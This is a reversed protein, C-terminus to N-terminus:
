IKKMGAYHHRSSSFHDVNEHIVVIITAAEYFASHLPVLEIVDRQEVTTDLAM